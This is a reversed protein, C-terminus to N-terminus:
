EDGAERAAWHADREDDTMHCFAALREAVTGPDTVAEVTGDARAVRLIALNAGPPASTAHALMIVRALSPEDCWAYLVQDGDLMIAGAAQGEIRENDTVPRGGDLAAVPVCELRCASGRGVHTETVYHDYGYDMALKSAIRTASELTPLKWPIRSESM